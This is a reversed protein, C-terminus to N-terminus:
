DRPIDRKLPVDRGISIHLDESRLLDILRLVDKRVASPPDGRLFEHIYIGHRQFFAAASIIEADNKTDALRTRTEEISPIWCQECRYTTVYGAVSDNFYPIVHILSEPFIQLCGSCCVQREEGDEPEETPTM